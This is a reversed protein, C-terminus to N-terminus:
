NSKRRTPCLVARLNHGRARTLLLPKLDKVEVEEQGMDEIQELRAEEKVLRPVM